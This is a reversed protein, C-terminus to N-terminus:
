SINTISAYQTNSMTWLENIYHRMDWATLDNYQIKHKVPADCDLNQGFTNDNDRWKM